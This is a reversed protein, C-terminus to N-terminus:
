LVMATENILFCLSVFRDGVGDQHWSPVAAHHVLSLMELTTVPSKLSSATACAIVKSDIPSKSCWNSCIDNGPPVRALIQLIPVCTHNTKGLMKWFTVLASIRSQNWQVLGVQRPAFQPITASYITSGLIFLCITRRTMALLQRVASCLQLLISLSVDFIKGPYNTPSQRFELGHVIDRHLTNRLVM